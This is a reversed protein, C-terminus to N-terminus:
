EIDEGADLADPLVDEEADSDEEVDFDEEVVGSDEEVHFAEEDANEDSLRKDNTKKDDDENAVKEGRLVKDEVERDDVEMRNSGGSDVNFATDSAEPRVSEFYRDLTTSQTDNDELWALKEFGQLLGELVNREKPSKTLEALLRLIQAIQIADVSSIFSKLDRKLPTCGVPIPTFHGTRVLLRDDNKLLLPRNSTDVAPTTAEPKITYDVEQGKAPVDAMKRSSQRQCTISVIATAREDKQPEYFNSNDTATLQLKKRVHPPARASRANRPM